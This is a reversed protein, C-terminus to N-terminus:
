DSEALFDYKSTDTQIYKELFLTGLKWNHIGLCLRSRSSSIGRLLTNWIYDWFRVSAHSSKKLFIQDTRHAKVKSLSLVNESWKDRKRLAMHHHFWHELISRYTYQSTWEKQRSLCEAHNDFTFIKMFTSNILEHNLISDCCPSRFHCMNM